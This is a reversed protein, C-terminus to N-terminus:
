KLKGKSELYLLQGKGTLQLTPHASRHSVLILGHNLLAKVTRLEIRRVGRASYGGHVRIFRNTAIAKLARKQTTSLDSLFLDAQIM